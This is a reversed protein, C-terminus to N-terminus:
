GSRVFAVVLKFPFSQILEVGADAVAECVLLDCILIRFIEFRSIVVLVVVAVPTPFGVAVYDDPKLWDYHLQFATLIDDDHRM